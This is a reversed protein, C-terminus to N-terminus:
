TGPDSTKGDSGGISWGALRVCIRNCSWVLRLWNEITLGVVRRFEGENATVVTCGLAVAQAAILLDNGGITKVAQELEARIRGYVADAPAEFCRLYM